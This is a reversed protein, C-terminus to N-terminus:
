ILNRTEGLWIVKSITVFIVCLSANNLSLKILWVATFIPTISSVNVLKLVTIWQPFPRLLSQCIGGVWDLHFLNETVNWTEADAMYMPLDAALKATCNALRLPIIGNCGTKVISGIYISIYNEKFRNRELKQWYSSTFKGNTGM